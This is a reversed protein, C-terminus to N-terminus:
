LFHGSKIPSIKGWNGLKRWNPGAFILDPSIQTRRFNLGSLYTLFMFTNQSSSFSLLPTSLLPTSLLPTSLLPTSLLPTSLLPTSLLPTSLLPTSLLPTSLLPTPFLFSMSRLLFTSIMVRCKM